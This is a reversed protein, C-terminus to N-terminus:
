GVTEGGIESICLQRTAEDNTIDVIFDSTGAFTNNFYHYCESRPSALEKMKENLLSPKPITYYSKQWPRCYEDKFKQLCINRKSTGTLTGLKLASVSTFLVVLIIGIIMAIIVAVTLTSVGKRM